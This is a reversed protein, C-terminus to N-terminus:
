VVYVSLFNIYIGNVVLLILLIIEITALQKFMNQIKLYNKKFFHRHM